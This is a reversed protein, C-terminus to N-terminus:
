ATAGLALRDAALASPAAEGIAPLVRAPTEGGHHRGLQCSGIVFGVPARALQHSALTLEITAIGGGNQGSQSVVVDAHLIPQDREFEPRM